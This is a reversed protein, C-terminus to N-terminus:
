DVYEQACREKSKPACVALTSVFEAQQQEGAGDLYTVTYGTMVSRGEAVVEFGLLLEYGREEADPGPELVAGAAPFPVGFNPGTPPYGRVFQTAGIRRDMGSFSAGLFRLGDGSLQPTVEVVTVPDNGNVFVIPLGNTFRTGVDLSKAWGHPSLGSVTGPEAGNGAGSCGEFVGAVAAAVLAAAASTAARHHLTRM